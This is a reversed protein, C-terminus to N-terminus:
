MNGLFSQLLCRSLFDSEEGFGMRGSSCLHSGIEVPEPALPHHESSPAAGGLHGGGRTLTLWSLLAAVLFAGLILWPLPSRFM